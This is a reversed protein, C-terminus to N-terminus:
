RQSSRAIGRIVEPYLECEAAFVRRQLTEPTDDPRVPVERQAIIRGHDYENDVFHVTCGSVPDGAELVAAHVRLGYYGQGGHRPLLSPHINIVRGEFDAPIVLRKLFGGLVVLEVAAVRCADFVAASYAADDAFDRRRFVETPIDAERAFNLGAAAPNSSIVLKFDVPLRGAAQESILNRLTTGGGSILVAIPPPTM